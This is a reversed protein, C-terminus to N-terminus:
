RALVPDGVAVRGPRRVEAYVGLCHAPTRVVALLASGLSVESGVWGREAPGPEDLELVLNARPQTVDCADCQEAHASDTMSGHSVVHVPAVDVFGGAGRDALRVPRGLLATLADGAEEPALGPAAGPVDLTLRGEDLHTAVERLRPEQAATVAAGAGDVVAWARDGALGATGIQVEPLKTGQMSKVPFVWVHAVRGLDDM